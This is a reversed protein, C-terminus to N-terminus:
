YANHRHNLMKALYNEKFNNCLFKVLQMEEKLKLSPKLWLYNNM